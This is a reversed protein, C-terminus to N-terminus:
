DPSQTPPEPEMTSRLYKLLGVVAAATRRIKATGVALTEDDIYRKAHAAILADEVEDLSGKAITTFRAFERHGYRGFGEALNRCVGDSADRLQTRFKWDQVIPGASTQDLVFRRLDDARQWAALDTFHRVGV